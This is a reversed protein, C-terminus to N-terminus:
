SRPKKTSMFTASLFLGKLLQLGLVMLVVM